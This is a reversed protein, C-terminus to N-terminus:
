FLQSKASDLSSSAATAAAMFFFTRPGVAAKARHPGEAEEVLPRPCTSHAPEPYPSAAAAEWLHLRPLESVDGSRRQQPIAARSVIRSPGVRVHSPTHVGQRSSIWNSTKVSSKDEPPQQQHQQQVATSTSCECTRKQTIFNHNSVRVSRTTITPTATLVGEVLVVELALPVMNEAAHLQQDVHEVDLAAFDVYPIGKRQNCPNRGNTSLCPESQRSGPPWQGSSSCRWPTRASGCSPDQGRPGAHARVNHSCVILRLM